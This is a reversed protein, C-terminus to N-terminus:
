CHDSTPENSSTIWHDLVTVLSIGCHSGPSPTVMNLMTGMLRIDTIDMVPTVDRFVLVGVM